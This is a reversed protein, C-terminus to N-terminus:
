GSPEEVGTTQSRPEGTDDAWQRWSFDACPTTIGAGLGEEEGGEAIRAQKNKWAFTLMM